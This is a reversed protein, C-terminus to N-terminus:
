IGQIGGTLFPGLPFEKNILSNQLLELVLVQVPYWPTHVGGTSFVKFCSLSHMGSKIKESIVSAQQFRSLENLRSLQLRDM